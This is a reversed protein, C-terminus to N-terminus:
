CAGPWLACTCLAHTLAAVAACRALHVGDKTRAKEMAFYFEDPNRLAAKNRLVQAGRACHM